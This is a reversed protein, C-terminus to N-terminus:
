VIFAVAWGELMKGSCYNDKKWIDDWRVAFVHPFCNDQSVKEKIKYVEEIVAQHRPKPLKDM